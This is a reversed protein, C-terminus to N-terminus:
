SRVVDEEVHSPLCTTAENLTAQTSKSPYPATLAYTLYIASLSYLGDTEFYHYQAVESIRQIAM